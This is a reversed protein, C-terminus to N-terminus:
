EKDKGFNDEHWDICGYFLFGIVIGACFLWLGEWISIM